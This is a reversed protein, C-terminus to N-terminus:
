SPLFRKVRYRKRCLVIRIESSWFHSSLESHAGNPWISGAKTTLLRLLTSYRGDTLYLRLRRSRRQRLLFSLSSPLARLLSERTTSRVRYRLRSALDPRLSYLDLGVLVFSALCVADVLDGLRRLSSGDLYALAYAYEAGLVLVVTVVDALDFRPTKDVVHLSWCM